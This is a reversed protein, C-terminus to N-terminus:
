LNQNSGMQVHKLPQALLEAKCVTIYIQYIHPDCEGTGKYEHYPFAFLMGVAAPLMEVCILFNQLNKQDETTRLAGVGSLISM